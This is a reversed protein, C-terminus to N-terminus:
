PVAYQQDGAGVAEELELAAPGAIRDEVSGPEPRSAQSPRAQDPRAPATPRAPGEAADPPRDADAARRAITRASTLLATIVLATALLFLGTLDGATTVPSM